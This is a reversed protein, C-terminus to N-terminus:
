FGIDDGGEDFSGQPEKKKKQNLRYSFGLIFQRSRWQFESESYYDDEEIISRWKRTNFIDKCSFTITGNGKLVDMALGADVNYMSKTRGQTTKRPSRYDISAQFDLKKFFTM